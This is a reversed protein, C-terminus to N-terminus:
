GDPLSSPNMLSLGGDMLLVSGTVNDVSPDCLWAVSRAVEEPQILRKVPVTNEARARREPQRRWVGASLGANVYGPAVENVLINHPALELALCRGLMRLGAKAVCYAPIHPHPAHAAWSGVLVIRGPEGATVLRQAAQQALNFAGTLNISLERQWQEPTLHQFDALTVIAANPVVIQPLGLEAQAADLWRTVAGADSVDAHRYHARVGGSRLARVLEAGDAEPRVDGISIHAGAQALELAIARGIDGLGGSIVAVKGALSSVDM